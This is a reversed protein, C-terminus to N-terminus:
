RGRGRLNNLVCLELRQGADVDHQDNPNGLTNVNGHLVGSVSNGLEHIQTSIFGGVLRQLREDVARLRDRNSATYNIHPSFTVDEFTGSVVTVGVPSTNVGESQAFRRLRRSDFTTVDNVIGFGTLGRHRRNPDTFNVTVSGNRGRQSPTFSTLGLGFLDRLCGDM